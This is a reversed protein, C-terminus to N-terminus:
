KDVEMDKDIMSKPPVTVNEGIKINDGIVTIGWDESNKMTEPDAGVVANKGIVANEAVIAYEVKAGEEIVAGPM